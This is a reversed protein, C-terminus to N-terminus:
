ANDKVLGKEIAWVIIQARTEFGLKAMINGIHTEVTRKSLVLAEAIERNSKGQAILAAVVRERETLGGFARKAAQRPTLPAPTPLLALAQQLFNERLMEDTVTAALTEIIPRGAVAQEDAMSQRGQAQYLQSLSVHIRWQLARRGLEAASAGAALLMKEAEATQGLAALVEGRLKWLRPIVCGEAMDPASVILREVIDLARPANGGALALEAQALWCARQYLTQMGTDTGLAADLVATARALVGQEVYTQALCASIYRRWILSGVEQALALAQELYRQAPSLALLDLYLAGLVCHAGTLWQRHEIEEAIALCARADALAQGYEGRINWQLAQEYLVFAEGARWGIDRTIRLAANAEELDSPTVGVPVLTDTALSGGGRSAM